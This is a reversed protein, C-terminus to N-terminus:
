YHETLPSTLIVQVPVPTAPVPYASPQGAESPGSPEGALSHGADRYRALWRNHSLSVAIGSNVYSSQLNRRRNLEMELYEEEIRNMDEAPAHASM